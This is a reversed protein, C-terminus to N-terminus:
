FGDNFDGEIKTTRGRWTIFVDVDASVEDRETDPDYRKVVKRPVVRVVLDKGRFSGAYSVPSDVSATRWLSHTEGNFSLYADEDGPHCRDTFFAISTNQATNRLCQAYLAADKNVSCYREEYRRNAPTRQAHIKAAVCDSGTDPTPVIPAAAPGALAALLLAVGVTQDM